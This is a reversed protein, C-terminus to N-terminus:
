CGPGRSARTCDRDVLVTVADSTAEAILENAPLELYGAIRTWPGGAYRYEAAYAVTLTIKYTGEAEYIHSTPTPDFENLGLTQWTAGPTPHTVATGDGYNWAYAFPTFRVDAPQGLLQGSVVHPAIDTYFNTPLGVVMWRDPQMYQVPSQPTFTAIDALTIIQPGSADSDDATDGPVPNVDLDPIAFGQCVVGGDYDCVIEPDVVGTSGPPVAYAPTASSGGGGNGSGGAPAGGQNGSNSSSSGSNGGGGGQSVEAGLSVNSGTMSTSVNPNNGQWQDFNGDEVSSAPAAAHANLAPNVLIFITVLAGM